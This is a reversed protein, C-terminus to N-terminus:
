NKVSKDILFQTINLEEVRIGKKIRILSPVKEIKFRDCILNTAGSDRWYDTNFYYITSPLRIDGEDIYNRLSQCEPCSPRGFYVYLDEVSDFIEISDISIVEIRNSSEGNNKVNNIQIVTLFICSILIVISLKYYDHIAAM